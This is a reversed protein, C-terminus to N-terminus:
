FNVLKLMGTEADHTVKINSYEHDFKYVLKGVQVVIDEHVLNLYISAKAPVKIRIQSADPLVETSIFAFEKVKVDGNAEITGGRCVGQITVKDGSYLSSYYSGAGIIQIEGSHRIISNQVYSAIFPPISGLQTETDDLFSRLSGGLREPIEM